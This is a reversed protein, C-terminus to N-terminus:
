IVNENEEGVSRNDEKDDLQKEESQRRTNAMERGVEQQMQSTGM